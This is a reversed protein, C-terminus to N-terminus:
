RTQGATGSTAGDAVCPSSRPPIRPPTLTRASKAIDDCMAQTTEDRSRRQDWLRSHSATHSHVEFVGAATMWGVEEWSLYREDGEESWGGLSRIKREPLKDTILFLLATMHYKEALLPAALYWNDIYGMM